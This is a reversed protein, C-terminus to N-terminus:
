QHEEVVSIAEGRIAADESVALANMVETLDLARLSKLSDMSTIMTIAKRLRMNKNVTTQLMTSNKREEM